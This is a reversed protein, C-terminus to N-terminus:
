LPLSKHVGRVLEVPSRIYAIVDGYLGFHSPESFKQSASYTVALLFSILFEDMCFGLHFSGGAGIRRASKM